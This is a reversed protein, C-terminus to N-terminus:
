KGEEKPTEEAIEVKRFEYSGASKRVAEDIIRELEAPDIGQKESGAKIAALIAANGQIIQQIGSDFWGLMAALTIHKRSGEPQTKGDFGFWEVQHHLVRAGVNEAAEMARRTMQHLGGEHKAGSIGPTVQSYIMKFQDLNLQEEPTAM